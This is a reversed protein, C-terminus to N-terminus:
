CPIKLVYTPLDELIPSGYHPQEGLDSVPQAANLPTIISRSSSLPLSSLVQQTSGRELMTLLAALDADYHWLSLAQETAPDLWPQPCANTSSGTLLGKKQQGIM